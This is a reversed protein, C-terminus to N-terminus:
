TGCTGCGGGGSAQVVGEASVPQVHIVGFGGAAALLALRTTEASRDNLVYLILRDDLTREIDILELQLKWKEARASWDAFSDEAAHQDKASRDLDDVTALRLLEGTPTAAEGEATKANPPLTQLVTALEQGRDTSVVVAATREPKDGWAAFRAVQPVRGYRALVLFDPVREELEPVGECTEATPAIM